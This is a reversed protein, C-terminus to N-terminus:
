GLLFFYMWLFPVYGDTIRERNFETCLCTFM